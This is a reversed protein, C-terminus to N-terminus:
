ELAVMGLEDRVRIMEDLVKKMESLQHRYVLLEEQGMELCEGLEEIQTHGQIKWAHQVNLDESMM